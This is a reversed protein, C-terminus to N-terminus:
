STKVPIERMRARESKPLHVTLLGNEFSAEVRDAEVTSPLTFRREFMGYTREYRGNRPQEGGEERRKEARLTLVNNEVSLNVDSPDVGPLEAVIRIADNTDVVDTAPWMAPEANYAPFGTFMEDMLRNFRNLALDSGRRGTTPILFM